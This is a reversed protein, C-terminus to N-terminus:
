RWGDMNSGTEYDVPAIYEWESGTADAFARGAVDLVLEAHGAEASTFRVFKSPDSLVEYYSAKGAVVVACRAYLFGDNSLEGPWDVAPIEALDRRDLRYLLSALRYEFGVIEDPARRALEEQLRAYPVDSCIEPRGEFIEMLAWFQEEEMM